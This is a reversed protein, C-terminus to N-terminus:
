YDVNNQQTWTYKSNSANWTGVRVVYSTNVGVEEKFKISMKIQMVTKAVDGSTIRNQDHNNIVQLMFSEMEKTDGNTKCLGVYIGTDIYEDFKNSNTLTGVNQITNLAAVSDSVAGINTYLEGIQGQLSDTTKKVTESTSFGGLKDGVDKIDNAATRIAEGKATDIADAITNSASYGSCADELNTVKGNLANLAQTTNQHNTYVTRNTTDIEDRVTNDLSFGGGILAQLGEATTGGSTLTDIQDHIDSIAKTLSKNTFGDGIKTDLTTLNDNTTALEQNIQNIDKAVTNTENYTGGIIKKVEDTKTTITNNLTNTANAVATNSSSIAETKATEIKSEIAKTSNFEVIENNANKITITEYGKAYNVAIEGYEIQDATPLKPKNSTVVNSKKHLHTGVKNIINEVM